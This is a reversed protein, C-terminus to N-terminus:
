NEANLYYSISFYIRSDKLMSDASKELYRTLHYALSVSRWKSQYASFTSSFRIGKGNLEVSKLEMPLILEGIYLPVDTTFGTIRTLIKFNRIKLFNLAHNRKFIFVVMGGYDRRDLMEESVSISRKSEDRSAGELILKISRSLTENGPLTYSIRLRNDKLQKVSNYEGEGEYFSRWRYRLKLESKDVLAFNGTLSMKGSIDPAPLNYGRWPNRELEIHSQIFSKSEHSFKGRILLATGTKGSPSSMSQDSISRLNHYEVPFHYFINDISMIPISGLLKNWGFTYALDSKGDVATEGYVSVIPATFKFGAWISHIDKGSFTFRNKLDYEPQFGPQYAAKYFGSYIISEIGKSFPRIYKATCGLLKETLKGKKEVESENRHLGSNYLRLVSGSATDLVADFKSISAFATIESFRFIREIAVGRLARNVKTDTAPNIKKEIKRYATKRDFSSRNDTKTWMGLGQGHTVHFDGVVVKMVYNEWCGWVHSMDTFEEEYADKDLSFGFKWGSKEIWYRQTLALSNGEYNQELNELKSSVTVHSRISLNTAPYKLYPLIEDPIDTPVNRKNLSLGRFNESKRNRISLSFKQGPLSLLSYLDSKSLVLKSLEWDWLIDSENENLQWDVSEWEHYDISIEKGYSEIGAYAILLSFVIIRM